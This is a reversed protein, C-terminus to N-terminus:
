RHMYSDLLAQTSIKILACDFRDPLVPELGSEEMAGWDFVRQSYADVELYELDRLPHSM